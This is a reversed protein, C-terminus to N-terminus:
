FFQYLFNVYGAYTFEDPAMKTGKGIRSCIIIDSVACSCLDKNRLKYSLQRKRWAKQVISIFLFSM